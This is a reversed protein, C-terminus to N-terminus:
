KRPIEEKLSAVEPPMYNEDHKALVQEAQFFSKSKYYGLAVTGQTEKFLDPLIGQYAVKISAKHDTIKFTIGPVRKEQHISGKEVWGGLRIRKMEPVDAAMLESPTYFFVMNDKLAWLVMATGGAAM